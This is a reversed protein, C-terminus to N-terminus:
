KAAKGHACLSYSEMLEAVPCCTFMDSRGGYSGFSTTFMFLDYSFCKDAIPASDVSRTENLGCVAM